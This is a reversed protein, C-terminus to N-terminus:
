HLGEHESAKVPPKGSRERQKNVARMQDAVLRKAEAVVAAMQPSTGSALLNRAAAHLFGHAITTKGRLATAIRRAEDEHRLNGSQKSSQPPTWTSM